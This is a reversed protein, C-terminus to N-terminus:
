SQRNQSLYTSVSKLWYVKTEKGPFMLRDIKIEVPVVQYVWKWIEKWTVVCHKKVKMLITEDIKKCKFM